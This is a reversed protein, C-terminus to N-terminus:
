RNRKRSRLFDRYSGAPRQEPSFPTRADQMAAFDAPSPPERKAAQNRRGLARELRDKCHACLGIRIQGVTQTTLLLPACTDCLHVTIM